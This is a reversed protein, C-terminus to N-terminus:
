LSCAELIDARVHSASPYTINCLYVAVFQKIVYICGQRAIMHVGLGRVETYLYNVGSRAAYPGTVPYQHGNITRNNHLSAPTKGSNCRWDFDDTTDQRIRCRKDKSADKEVDCSFM